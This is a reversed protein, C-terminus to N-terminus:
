CNTATTLDHFQTNIRCEFGRVGGYIGVSITKMRAVFASEQEEKM